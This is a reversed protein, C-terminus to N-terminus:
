SIRISEMIAAVDLDLQRIYADEGTMPRNDGHDKGLADVPLDCGASAIVALGRHPKQCVDGNSFHRAIHGKADSPGKLHLAVPKSQRHL